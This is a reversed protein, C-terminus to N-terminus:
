EVDYATLCFMGDLKEWVEERKTRWAMSTRLLEVCEPFFGVGAWGLEALAQLGCVPDWVFARCVKSDHILKTCAVEARATDRMTCEPACAAPRDISAFPTAITDLWCATLEKRATSLVDLDACSLRPRGPQQGFNPSRVLEYFVRKLIAPVDCERALALSEIAHPIRTVSLQSLSTSWMDTLYRQAWTKYKDFSLANAARLISTVTAFPPPTYFYDRSRLNKIRLDSLLIYMYM